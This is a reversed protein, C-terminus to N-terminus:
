LLSSAAAAASTNIKYVYKELIMSNMKRYLDKFTVYDINLKNVTYAGASRFKCFNYGTIHKLRESSICEMLLKLYINSECIENFHKKTYVKNPFIYNFLEPKNYFVCFDFSNFREITRMPLEIDHHDRKYSENFCPSKLFMDVLVSIKENYYESCISYIDSFGPIIEKIFDTINFNIRAGSNKYPNTTNKICELLYEFDLHPKTDYFCGKIRECDRITDIREICQYRPFNDLYQSTFNLYLEPYDILICENFYSYDDKFHSSLVHKLYDKYFCNKNNYSDKLCEKYTTDIFLKIKDITFESVLIDTIIKIVNQKKQNIINIKDDIIKKILNFKDEFIKYQENYFPCKEVYKKYLMWSNYDTCDKIFKNETINYYTTGSSTKNVDNIFSKYIFTIINNEYIKLSYVIKKIYDELEKKYKKIQLNTNNKAKIFEENYQKFLEPAIDKFIFIFEQDINELINSIENINQSYTEILTFINVSEKNTIKIEFQLKKMFLFLQAKSYFIELREKLNDYHLKYKENDDIPFKEKFTTLIEEVKKRRIDIENQIKVTEGTPDTDYSSTIIDYFLYVPISNLYLDVCKNHFLYAIDLDLINVKNSNLLDILINLEDIFVSSEIQRELNLISIINIIAPEFEKIRFYQKKLLSKSSRDISPTSIIKIDYHFMDIITDRTTQYADERKVYLTNHLSEEIPRELEYDSIRIILVPKHTKKKFNSFAALNNFQM